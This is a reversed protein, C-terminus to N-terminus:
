NAKYKYVIVKEQFIVVGGYSYRETLREKIIGSLEPDTTEVVKQAKQTQPDYVDGPTADIVVGYETLIQAMGDIMRDLLTLYDRASLPDTSDAALEDHLNQVRQKIQTVIAGDSIRCLTQVRTQLTDVIQLLANYHSVLREYVMALRLRETTWDALPKKESNGFREAVAKAEAELEALVSPDIEDATDTEVKPVLCDDAVQQLLDLDFEWDELCNEDSDQDKEVRKCNRRTDERLKILAQITGKIRSYVIGEEYEQCRKQLNNVQTDHVEDKKIAKLILACQESIGAIAEATENSAATEEKSVAEEATAAEETEAAEETTATEEAAAAEETITVFDDKSIDQLPDDVFNQVNDKEM